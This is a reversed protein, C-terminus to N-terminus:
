QVSNVGPIQFSNCATKCINSLLIVFEDGGL